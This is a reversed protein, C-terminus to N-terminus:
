LILGSMEMWRIMQAFWGAVHEDPLMGEEPVETEETALSLGHVGRPYIVLEVPVHAEVLANAFLLSNQVPVSQDEATQWIFAQPTHRTVHKELSMWDAAKEYEETGEYATIVPYCLVMGDPRLEQGAFPFDEFINRGNWDTGDYHVGLSGACHAGASFGIVTVPEGPYLERIQAVAWAAQVLPRVGLVESETDYWIMGSRIGYGSFARAVPFAERDSLYRYGGGPFILVTGKHPFPEEPSPIELSADYIGDIKM